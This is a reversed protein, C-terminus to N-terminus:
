HFYKPFVHNGAHYPNEYDSRFAVDALRLAALM